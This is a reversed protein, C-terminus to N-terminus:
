VALRFEETLLPVLPHALGCLLQRTCLDGCRACFAMRRPDGLPLAKARRTPLVLLREKTSDFFAGQLKQIGAGFAVVPASFPTDEM